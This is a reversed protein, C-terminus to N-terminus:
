VARDPFSRAHLAVGLEALEFTEAKRSSFVRVNPPPVLSRPIVSRADHNGRIVFCPRNLRRMERAFFRGTSYDRWDADYLDGAIIVFAVDRAVALDVLNAFARRTCHQIIHEPVSGRSSLGTLPSDLHIDAAHLFQM